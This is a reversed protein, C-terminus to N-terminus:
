EPMSSHFFAFCGRDSTLRHKLDAWDAIQHVAEYRILKELITASTKWTIRELRLFGLNFWSKLLYRLDYALGALAPNRRHHPLLDARMDVLFKMGSPITNFLRLLSLRPSELAKKLAQIEGVKGGNAQQYASIARDVGAADVPFNEALMRFFAGKEEDAMRQFGDAVRAIAVVGSIEGRKELAERCLERLSQLSPPRATSDEGLWRGVTETLWLVVGHVHLGPPPKILVPAEADWAPGAPPKTSNPSFDKKIM